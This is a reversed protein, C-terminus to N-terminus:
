GAVGNRNFLPASAHHIKIFFVTPAIGEPVNPRNPCGERGSQPRHLTIEPRCDDCIISQARPRYLLQAAYAGMIAMGFRRGALM